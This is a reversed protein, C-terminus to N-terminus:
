NAKPGFGKGSYYGSSQSSNTSAPAYPPAIWNSPGVKPGPMRADSYVVGPNTGIQPPTTSPATAVGQAYAAVGLTSVLATSLIATRFMKM